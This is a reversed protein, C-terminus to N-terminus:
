DPERFHSRSQWAFQSRVQLLPGAERFAPADQVGDGILDRLVGLLALVLGLGFCLLSLAAIAIMM